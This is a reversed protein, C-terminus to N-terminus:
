LPKRFVWDLRRQLKGALLHREESLVALWAGLDGYYRRHHELRAITFPRAYSQRDFLFPKRRCFHAVRPRSVEQPFHWNSDACDQKLEDVGQHESIHQLDSV